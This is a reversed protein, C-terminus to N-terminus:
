YGMSIGFSLIVEDQKRSANLNETSETLRLYHVGLSAEWSGYDAPICSIPMSFDVGVDIYGLNSDDAAGASLPDEYYDGLSLGVTVPITMTIPSDQSEVLTMSPAIGVELYIGENSGGDAQGDTEIAVTVSPSLGLGDSDDYSASVAFESITGFADNPSSYNTYTLGFEMNEVHSCVLSVYLDAEYWWDPGSFNSTAGTQRDHMSNWLGFNLSLNDSLAVGIDVWPQTILGQDEQVIGRFFYATTFDVGASLSIKGTNPGAEEEAHAAPTTVWLGAAVMTAM